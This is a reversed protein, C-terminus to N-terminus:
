MQSPIRIELFDSVYRSHLAYANQKLLWYKTARKYKAKTAAAIKAATSFVSPLFPTDYM